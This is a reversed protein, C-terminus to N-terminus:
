KKIIIFDSSYSLQEKDKLEIQNSLFTLMTLRSELISGKIVGKIGGTAYQPSINSFSFTNSRLIDRYLEIIDDSSLINDYKLYYTMFSDFCDKDYLNHLEDLIDIIRKEGSGKYEFKFRDKVAPHSSLLKFIKIDNNDFGKMNKSFLTSYLSIINTDSLKDAFKNYLLQFMDFSNSTMINELTEYVLDSEM